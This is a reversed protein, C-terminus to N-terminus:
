YTVKSFVIFIKKVVRYSQTGVVSSIGTLLRQECSLIGSLKVM